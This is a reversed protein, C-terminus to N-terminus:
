IDFNVLPNRRFLLEIVDKSELRQWTRLVYCTEMGGFLWAHYQMITSCSTFYLPGFYWNLWLSYRQTIEYFDAENEILYRSMKCFVELFVLRMEAGGGVDYDKFQPKTMSMISNYMDQIMTSRDHSKVINRGHMNILDELEEVTYIKALNTIIPM